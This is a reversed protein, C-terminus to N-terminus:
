PVYHDLANFVNHHMPYVTMAWRSHSDMGANPPCGLINPNVDGLGELMTDFERLLLNAHATRGCLKSYEQPSRCWPYLSSVRRTSAQPPRLSQMAPDELPVTAATYKQDNRSQKGLGASRM